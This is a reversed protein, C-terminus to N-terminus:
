VCTRQKMLHDAVYAADHRAGDIFTSDRRHQFRLGVAYLGPAGTVGRVHRLHGEADLVPVALWPYSPGFGTAWVV